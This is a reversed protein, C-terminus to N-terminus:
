CGHCCRPQGQEYSRDSNVNIDNRVFVAHGTWCLLMSQWCEFDEFVCDSGWEWVVIAAETAVCHM